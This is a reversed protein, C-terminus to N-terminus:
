ALQHKKCKELAYDIPEQGYKNFWDVFLQIHSSKMNSVDIVAGLEHWSFKEESQSFLMSSHLLLIMILFFKEVKLRM